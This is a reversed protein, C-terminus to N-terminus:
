ITRTLGVTRDFLPRNSVIGESTNLQYKFSHDRIKLFFRDTKQFPQQAGSCSVVPVTVVKGVGGTLGYTQISVYKGGKRLVLRRVTYLTRIVYYSSISCGFLFYALGIGWSGMMVQQFRWDLKSNNAVMDQVPELTSKLKWASYGMNAWVPFM